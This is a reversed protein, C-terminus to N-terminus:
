VGDSTLRIDIEIFPAGASVGAKVASLTNEPAIGAAGRHSVAYAGESESLSAFVLHLAANLAILAALIILIRKGTM